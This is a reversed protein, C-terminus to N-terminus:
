SNVAKLVLAANRSGFGFSNSLVTRISQRRAGETIYDLDCVPDRETFNITPPVVGHRLALASIILEVPGSAAILHGLMSKSSSVPIQRARGGFVTKLIVTETADNKPTSTGHANVYDIESPEVGAHALAMRIARAGQRGEPDPALHHFADCTAGFGALEAYISAGRERAIEEAELVLAGAGESLVFGSREKSFPRSAREPPDNLRSLAGIRDFSAFLLPFLPADSGGVVAADLMGSQIQALALGIADAGATCATGVAYAAGRLGLAIAIQSSLSGPYQLSFMPHVRELGKEYFTVGDSVARGIAGVASGVCVGIRDPDIAVNPAGADEWAMRAAAVGLHVFRGFTQIDRQPLFDGPHFDIVEGAVRSGCASPDFTSVAKTGSRGSTVADWTESVGIGCPTVCGLGTIVVRRSHPFVVREMHLARLYRVHLRALLNNTLFNTSPCLM